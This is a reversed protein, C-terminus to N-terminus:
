RSAPRSASTRATSAASRAAGRQPRPGRLLPRQARAVPTLVAVSALPEDSALESLADALFAVCAGHDTFRFLEVPPGSRTTRVPPEDDERLEGLLASRSARSRTRRATASRLTSSRPARSASSGSSSAWSTFGRTSSSTSSRTAPSRSAAAARRPLGLLVQVELPSFDQVEDVAVHRYRLPAGGPAGAAARACSGPACCCRTTRPTSSPARRRPRGRAM